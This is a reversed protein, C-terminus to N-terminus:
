QPSSDALSVVEEVKPTDSTLTGTKDLCLCDTEGFHELCAGGKILILNDAANALAGTVATTAALVTACPCAMVLM